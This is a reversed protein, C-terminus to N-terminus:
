MERLATLLRDIEEQTNYHVLGVRVMGGSGELGLRETVSVAYYNGDWVFIGKDGLYTAIARPTFGERTFALTPCRTGFEKPNTIGYVTIGPIKQIEELMYTFLPREYARITNMAQKLERRRGEYLGSRAPDTM